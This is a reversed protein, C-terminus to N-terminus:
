AYVFGLFALVLMTVIVPVYKFWTDWIKEAEEKDKPDVTHLNSYEHFHAHCNPCLEATAVDKGFITKPLTHHTHLYFYTGCKQCEGKKAEKRM